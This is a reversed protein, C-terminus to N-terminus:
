WGEASSISSSSSSLALCSLRRALEEDGSASALRRHVATVYACLEDIEGTVDGRDAGCVLRAMSAVCLRQAENDFWWGGGCGNM